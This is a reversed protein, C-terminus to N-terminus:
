NGRKKSLQQGRKLVFLFASFFILFSFILGWFGSETQSFKIPPFFTMGHITRNKKLFPSFVFRWKWIAIPLGCCLDSGGRKATTLVIKDMELTFPICIGGRRERLGCSPADGSWDQAWRGGRM